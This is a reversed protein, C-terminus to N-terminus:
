QAEAMVQATASARQRFADSAAIQSVISAFRYEDGAANRVIQRLVPMDRHDLERGLAYTMLKQTLTQVFQTPDKMLADRLDDPGDIKTGNPLMGAADIAEGTDADRTRYQGITDFNELAFGLPDMVGHCAFCSRNARHQELRERQTAPKARPPDKFVGAGPPPQYPVAGLLRDLIWVGRLVPSTRNPYATIM